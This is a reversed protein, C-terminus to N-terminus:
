LPARLFPRPDRCVVQPYVDFRGTCASVYTVEPFGVLAEIVANNTGPQVAILVFGLVHYGLQFPDAIAVIRLAVL